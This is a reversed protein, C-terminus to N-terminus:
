GYIMRRIQRISLEPAAFRHGGLEAAIQEFIADNRLGARKLDAHRRAAFGEVTEDFFAIVEHVLHALRDRELGTSTGLHSLLLDYDGNRDM